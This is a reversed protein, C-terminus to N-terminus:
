WRCFEGLIVKLDSETATKTLTTQKVSDTVKRLLKFLLCTNKGRKEEEERLKKLIPDWKKLEEDKKKLDVELRSCKRVLEDLEKKSFRKKM